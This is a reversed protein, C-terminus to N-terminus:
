ALLAYIRILILWPKCLEKPFAILQKTREAQILFSSFIASTQVSSARLHQSVDWLETKQKTQQKTTVWIFYQLINSLIALEEVVIIDYPTGTDTQRWRLLSSPVGSLIARYPEGHTMSSVTGLFIAVAVTVRSVSSAYVTWFAQNRKAGIMAGQATSSLYREDIM